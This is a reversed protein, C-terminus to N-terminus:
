NNKKQSIMGDLFTDNNFLNSLENVIFNINQTISDDSLLELIRNFNNVLFDNYELKIFQNNIHTMLLASQSDFFSSLPLSLISNQINSLTISNSKIIHYSSAFDDVLKNLIPLLPNISSDFM